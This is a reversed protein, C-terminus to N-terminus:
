PVHKLLYQAVIAAVAVILAVKTSQKAMEVKMETIKDGMKGLEQWMLNRQKQCDVEHEHLDAEVRGIRQGTHLSGTDGDDNSM